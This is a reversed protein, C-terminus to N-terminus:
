WLLKERERQTELAIKGRFAALEAISRPVPCAREKVIARSEPSEYASCQSRAQAIDRGFPAPRWEALEDVAVIAVNQVELLMLGAFLAAVQRADFPFEAAEAQSQVIEISRKARDRVLEAHVPDDDQAIAPWAHGDENGLVIVAQHIQKMALAISFESAIEGQDDTIMGVGLAVGIEEAHGEM